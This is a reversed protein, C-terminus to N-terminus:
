KALELFKSNKQKTEDQLMLTRRASTLRTKERKIDKIDRKSTSLDSIDLTANKDKSLTDRSIIFRRTVGTKATQTRTTLRASQGM